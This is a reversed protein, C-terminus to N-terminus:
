SPKLNSLLMGSNIATGGGLGKGQNYVISRGFIGPMPETQYMWDLDGGLNLAQMELIDTRSRTDPGAEILLIKTDGNYQRLRSAVVSGALGGGVIIYDYNESTM